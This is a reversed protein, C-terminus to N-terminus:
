KMPPHDTSCIFPSILLQGAHSCRCAVFHSYMGPHTALTLAITSFVAHVCGHHCLSVLSSLHYRTFVDRTENSLPCSTLVDKTVDHCLCHCVVDRSCMGLSTTVYPIDFLTPHVCEYHRRLLPLTLCRQTFVYMTVDHCLCHCVVNRSCMWLSTTVSAIDFLTAHVCVYHRRSLPLTLSRQTFVDM